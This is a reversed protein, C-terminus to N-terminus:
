QALYPLVALLTHNTVTRCLPDNVVASRAAAHLHSVTEGSPNYNVFLSTAREEFAVTRRSRPSARISLGM